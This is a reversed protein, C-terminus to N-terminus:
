NLVANEYNNASLLVEVKKSLLKDLESGYDGCAPHRGVTSGLSFGAVEM